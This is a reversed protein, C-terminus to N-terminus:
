AFYKALVANLGCVCFVFLIIKFDFGVFLFYYSTGWISSMCPPCDFLPKHFFKPIHKCIFSAPKELIMDTDTAVRLGVCFLSAVSIHILFDIMSLHVRGCPVGFLMGKVSHQM